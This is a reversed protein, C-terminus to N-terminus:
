VGVQASAETHSVSPSHQAVGRELAGAQEASYVGELVWLKLLKHM